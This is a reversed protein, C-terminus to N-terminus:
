EYAVTERTAEIITDPDPLYHEETQFYPFNVDYGTVRQIPAILHEFAHENLQAVIESSVSCTRPAEQVIVCRGTRRVSEAITPVDMPASILM